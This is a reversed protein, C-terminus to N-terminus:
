VFPTGRRETPMPGRSHRLRRETRRGQGRAELRKITADQRELKQQMSRMEKRMELLERKLEDIAQARALTPDLAMGLAVLVLAGCRYDRRM